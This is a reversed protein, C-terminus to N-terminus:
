PPLHLYYFTYNPEVEDNICPEVTAEATEVVVPLANRAPNPRPFYLPVAGTPPAHGLTPPGSPM